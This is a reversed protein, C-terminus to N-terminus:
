NAQPPSADKTEVGKAKVNKVVIALKRLDDTVGKFAMGHICAWSLLAAEPAYRSLIAYKAAIAGAANVVIEIDGDGIERQKLYADRRESVYKDGISDILGNIVNQEIRDLIKLGAEAVTKCFEIDAESVQAEPQQAPKPNSTGVNPQTGNQAKRGAGPRAGGRKSKVTETAASVAAASTGDLPKTEGGTTDGTERSFLGM